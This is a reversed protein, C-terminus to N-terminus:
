SPSPPTSYRGTSLLPLYLWYRVVPFLVLGPCPPAPLIKGFFLLILGVPKRISLKDLPLKGWPLHEVALYILSPGAGALVILLIRVITPLFKLFHRYCQGCSM